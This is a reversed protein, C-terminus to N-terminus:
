GARVSVIVDPKSPDVVVPEVHDLWIADALADEESYLNFEVDKKVQYARAMDRAQEKTEAVVVVVRNTFDFGKISVFEGTPIAFKWIKMLGETRWAHIGRGILSRVTNAISMKVGPSQEELWEKHEGIAADMEEDLPVLIRFIRKSAM